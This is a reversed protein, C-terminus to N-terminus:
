NITECPMDYAITCRRIDQAGHLTCVAGHRAMLPTRYRLAQLAAAEDVPAPFRERFRREGLAQRM